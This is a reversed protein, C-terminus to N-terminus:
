DWRSLSYYVKGGAGIDPGPLTDIHQGGGEQIMPTFVEAGSGLANEQLLVRAGPNLFRKVQM